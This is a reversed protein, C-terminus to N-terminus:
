EECSVIKLEERDLQDFFAKAEELSSSHTPQRIITTQNKNFKKGKVKKSLKSSSEVQDMKSHINIKRKRLKPKTDDSIASETLFDFQLESTMLRDNKQNSSRATCDDDSSTDHEHMALISFDNLNGDEYNDDADDEVNLITPSTSDPSSKKKGSFSPAIPSAVNDLVSNALTSLRGRRYRNTIQGGYSKKVKSTEWSLLAHQEKDNDYQVEENEQHEDHTMEVQHSNNYYVPRCKVEDWGLFPDKNSGKYSLHSAARRFIMSHHNYQSLTSQNKIINRHKVARKNRKHSIWVGVNGGYSLRGTNMVIRSHKFTGFIFISIYTIVKQRHILLTSHCKGRIKLQIKPAPRKRGREKTEKKEHNSVTLRYKSVLHSDREATGFISKRAIM